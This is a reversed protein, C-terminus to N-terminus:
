KYVKNVGYKAEELTYRDGADSSLQRTLEERSMPMINLYNQAAKAANEKWDTKVNDIAYHAADSSYKSFTLQRYLGRKSFPATILYMEATKLAQIHEIPIPKKSEHKTVAPATKQAPAATTEKKAAEQTPASVTEKQQAQTVSSTTTEENKPSLAGIIFLVFFISCIIKWRPHRERNVYCLFIGLPPFLILWVWMFWSAQWLKLRDQQGM